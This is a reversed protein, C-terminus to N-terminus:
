QLCQAKFQKVGRADIVFPPDCSEQKKPAASVASSATPRPAGTRVGHPRPSEHASPEPAPEAAVSSPPEAVIVASATPITAPMAVVLTAEPAAASAAPRWRPAILLAGAAIIVTAGILGAVAVGIARTHRRESGHMTSVPATTSRPDGKVRTTRGAAETTDEEFSRVVSPRPSGSALSAGGGAIAARWAELMVSADPWRDERRFALARDIVRALPEPLSPAYTRIPSAPRTTTLVVIEPVTSGEHVLRNTLLTFLTAGLSYVDSRADVRDWHALAQEPPMFAPTGMPVGAQTMRGSSPGQWLRALGFDLVKVGGNRLLFLNEPKLDRHVIGRAHAAAIVELAGTGIRAVLPLPLTGGLREALAEVSEGELLEMVLYPIGGQMLGDDLIAVAGPHGVLNAARGESLFRAVIEPERAHEEHLIKIAVRAATRQHVAAYVSGMGGEGLRKEVLWKEDIPTGAPLPDRPSM